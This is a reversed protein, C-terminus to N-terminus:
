YFDVSTQGASETLFFRGTHSFIEGILDLPRILILCPMWLCVLVYSHGTSLCLNSSRPLKRGLNRQTVIYSTMIYISLAVPDTSQCTPTTSYNLITRKLMLGKNSRLMVRCLKYHKTCMEFLSCLIVKLVMQDLPTILPDIKCSQLSESLGGSPGSSQDRNRSAACPSCLHPSWQNSAPSKNQNMQRDWLTASPTQKIDAREASHAKITNEGLTSPPRLHEATTVLPSILHLEDLPGKRVCLATAPLRMTISFDCGWAMLSHPQTQIETAEQYQM